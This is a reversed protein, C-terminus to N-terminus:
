GGNGRGGTRHMPEKLPRGCFAFLRSSHTAAKLDTAHAFQGPRSQRARTFRSMATFNKSSHTSASPMPLVHLGGNVGIEGGAPQGRRKAAARNRERREDLAVLDCRGVSRPILRLNAWRPASSQSACGRRWQIQRHAALTRNRRAALPRDLCRASGEHRWPPCQAFREDKPYRDGCHLM